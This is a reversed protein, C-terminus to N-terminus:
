FRELVKCVPKTFIFVLIIKIYIEYLHRKFSCSSTGDAFFSISFNTRRFVQNSLFTEM